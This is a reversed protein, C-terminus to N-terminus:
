AEEPTVSVHDFSKTAIFDHVFNTASKLKTSQNLAPKSLQGDLTGAWENISFASGIKLNHNFLDHL